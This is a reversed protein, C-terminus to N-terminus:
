TRRGPDDLEGAERVVPDDIEGRAGAGNHGRVAGINM